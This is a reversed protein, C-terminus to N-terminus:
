FMNIFGSANRGGSVNEGLILECDGAALFIGWSSSDLIQANGLELRSFSGGSCALEINGNNGPQGEGGYQVVVHDMQNFPSTSFRFDIGEWFGAVPVAGTFVIPEAATGIANLFGTSSVHLERGSDFVLQTGPLLTLGAGARIGQELFYPVGLPQWTQEIDFVDNFM